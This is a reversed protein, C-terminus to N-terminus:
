RLIATLYLIPTNDICDIPFTIIRIQNMQSQNHMSFSNFVFNIVDEMGATFVVLEYYKCLEELFIETNPRIQIYANDDEEVYHVLTEDLDLVLTYPKKNHSFNIEPLFPEQPQNLENTNENEAEKSNDAGDALLENFTTNFKKLNDLIFQSLTIFNTLIVSSYVAERISNIDFAESNKVYNIVITFAKGEEKSTKTKM